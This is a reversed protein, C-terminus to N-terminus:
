ANKPKPRHAKVKEQDVEDEDMAEAAKDLPEGSSTEFTKKFDKLAETLEEVASEPLQGSNVIGDYIGQHRHAIYDLFEARNRTVGPFQSIFDEALFEGFRKADSSQDSHFFDKNLQDLIALDEASQKTDTM